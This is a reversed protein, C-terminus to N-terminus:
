QKKGKKGGDAKSPAKAAKASLYTYVDRQREGDEDDYDSGALLALGLEPLYELHDVTTEEDDYHVTIPIMDFRCTGLTLETMPGFKHNHVETYPEGADLTAVQSVWRGEPKPDPMQPPPFAHGYTIRGELDPQGDVIEAFELLYIGKGLLIRSAYGDPATFNVEVTSDTDGARYVERDGGAMEFAIGTALDAGTPCTQDQALAPMALAAATLSLLAHRM